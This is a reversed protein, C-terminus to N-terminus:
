YEIADNLEDQRSVPEVEKVTLKEAPKAAEPKAAEGGELTSNPGPLEAPQAQGGLVVYRKIEFHPRQRKYRKSWLTDSLLIVPCVPKGHVKRMLQTQHALDSVCRRGGDTQTVFLFQAMTEDLLLVQYEAVWPGKLNGDPGEVWESKPTSENRAELDPWKEGPALPYREPAQDRDPSWKVVHRRVDAAIYEKDRPLETGDRLVYRYDNTFKVLPALFTSENLGTVSESTFGDYGDLQHAEAKAVENSM